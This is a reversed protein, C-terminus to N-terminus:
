GLSWNMAEPAQEFFAMAYLHDDALVMALEVTRAYGKMFQGEFGFVFFSHHAKPSPLVRMEGHMLPFPFSASFTHWRGFGPQAGREVARRLQAMSMEHPLDPFQLDPM